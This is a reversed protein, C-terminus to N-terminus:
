VEIQPFYVIVDTGYVEYSTGELSFETDDIGHDDFYETLRLLFDMFSNEQRVIVGLCDRHFTGNGTSEDYIEYQRNEKVFNRIGEEVTMNEESDRNKVFLRDNNKHMTRLRSENINYRYEM